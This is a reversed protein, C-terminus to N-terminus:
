HNSLLLNLAENVDDNCAILANVAEESTFGMEKLSSIRSDEFEAVAEGDISSTSNSMSNQARSAPFVTPPHVVPEEPADALM